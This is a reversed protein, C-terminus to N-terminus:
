KLACDVTTAEPRAAYQWLIGTNGLEKLGQQRCKVPILIFRLPM